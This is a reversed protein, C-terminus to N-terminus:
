RGKGAKNGAVIAAVQPGILTGAQRARRDLVYYCTTACLPWNDVRHVKMATGTGLELGCYVCREVENVKAQEAKPAIHFLALAANASRIVHSRTEKWEILWIGFPDDTFAAAEVTTVPVSETVPKGTDPDLMIQGRSDLREVQITPGGGSGGSNGTGRPWGRCNAEDLIWSWADFTQDVDRHMQARMEARQRSDIRQDPRPKTTM